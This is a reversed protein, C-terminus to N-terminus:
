VWSSIFNQPCKFTDLHFYRWVGEFGGDQSSKLGSHSYLIWGLDLFRTLQEDPTLIPNSFAQPTHLFSNLSIKILISANKWIHSDNKSKSFYQSKSIPFYLPFYQSKFIPAHIDYWPVHGRLCHKQRLQRRILMDLLNWFWYLVLRGTFLVLLDDLSGNNITNYVYKWLYQQQLSLYSFLASTACANRLGGIIM